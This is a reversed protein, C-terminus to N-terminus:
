HKTTKPKKPRKESMLDFFEKMLEAIQAGGEREEKKQTKVVIWGVRVGISDNVVEPFETRVSAWFFYEVFARKVDAMHYAIYTERFEKSSRLLEDVANEEYASLLEENSILLEATRLELLKAQRRTRERLMYLKKLDDNMVGVHQDGEELTYIPGKHISPDITALEDSIERLLKSM